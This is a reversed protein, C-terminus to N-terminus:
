LLQANNKNKLHAALTILTGDKLIARACEQAEIVKEIDAADVDTEIETLLSVLGEAKNLMESVKSSIDIKPTM